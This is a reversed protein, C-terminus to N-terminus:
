VQRDVPGKLEEFESRIESIIEQMKQESRSIEKTM